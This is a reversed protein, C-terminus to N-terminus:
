REGSAACAVRSDPTSMEPLPNLCAFEGFHQKAAENYAKAAEVRSQFYGLNHIRGKVRIMANWKRYRPYWYVGRYGSGNRRPRRNACNQSATAPRLNNRCNNLGNRDIHDYEDGTELGMRDAVVHHMWVAKRHDGSRQTRTAYGGGGDTQRYQWKWQMLHDYDEDDVLAEKGKTLRIRRM